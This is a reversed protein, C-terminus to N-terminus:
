SAADTNLITFVISFCTNKLPFDGYRSKKSLVQLHFFQQVAASNCTGYLMEM